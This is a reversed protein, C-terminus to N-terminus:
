EELRPEVYPYRRKLENIDLNAELPTLTHKALTPIPKQDRTLDDAWIQAEPGRLGAIYVLYKMTQRWFSKGIIIKWQSLKDKMGVVNLVCGNALM